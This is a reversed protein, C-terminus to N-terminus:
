GWVYGDGRDADRHPYGIGLGRCEPADTLVTDGRIAPWVFSGCRGTQGGMQMPWANWGVPTSTLSFILALILMEEFFQVESFGASSRMVGRTFESATSLIGNKVCSRILTSGAPCSISRGFRGFVRIVAGLTRLFAKLVRHPSAWRSGQRVLEM